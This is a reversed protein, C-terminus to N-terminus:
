RMMAHAALAVIPVAEADRIRRTAGAGDM